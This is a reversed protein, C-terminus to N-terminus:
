THIEDPIEENPNFARFSQQKEWFQQWKPEILHFPYQRRMFVLRSYQAFRFPLCHFFQECVGRTPQACRADPQCAGLPRESRTDARLFDHRDSDGNGTQINLITSDHRQRKEFNGRCAFTPSFLNQWLSSCFQFSAPWLLSAEMLGFHRGRM